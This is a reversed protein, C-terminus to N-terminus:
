SSTDLGLDSELTIPTPEKDLVLNILVKGELEVIEYYTDNRLVLKNQQTYGLWQICCRALGAPHIALEQLEFDLRSIQAKKLELCITDLYPFLEEHMQLALIGSPDIILCRRYFLKTLERAKYKSLLHAFQSFLAHISTPKM